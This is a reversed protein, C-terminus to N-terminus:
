EVLPPAFQVASPATLLGEASSSASLPLVRRYKAGTALWLPLLAAASVSRAQSWALPLAPVWTSALLLPPLVANELAVSTISTATVAILSAGTMVLPPPLVAITLTASFVVATVVTVLVSMSPPVATYLMAGVPLPPAASADRKLM